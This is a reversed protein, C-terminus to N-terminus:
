KKIFRLVERQHDTGIELIYLGSNLQRVQLTTSNFFEGKQVAQGHISWITYTCHDQDTVINLTTCTPNPFLSIQIAESQRIGVPWRVHMDYTGVVGSGDKATAHITFSGKALGRVYGHSDIHAFTSDETSSLTWAVGIDTASDPVVTASLQILEGIDITDSVAAITISEVLTIEQTWLQVHDLYVVGPSFDNGDKWRFALWGKATGAPPVFDFTFETYETSLDYSQGGESIVTRGDDFFGYTVNLKGAAPSDTKAWFKGEYEGGPTLPMNSDWTDLSRDSLGAEPEVYTIMAAKAGHVVDGQIIENTSGLPDPVEYFRWFTFDNEFSGNFGAMVDVYKVISERNWVPDLLSAEPTGGLVGENGNSSLDAISQGQGEDIPWYGALGTEGGTIRQTAFEKIEQDSRAVNWIRVETLGAEIVRGSFAPSSGLFLHETTTPEVTATFTESTSVLNGNLYIKQLSGDYVGAVHNWTNLEFLQVGDESKLQHWSGDGFGWQIQGDGNARLFYGVDNGSEGHDMALITSQYIAGKTENIKFWAELTIESGSIQLSEDRGCDVYDDVGDFSLHHLVEIESPTSPSFFIGSVVADPGELLDMTFRVKGRITWTYWIGGDFDRITQIDYKDGTAHDSVNLIFSRDQMDGDLFYLSVDVEKEGVDVSFWWPHDITDATRAALITSDPKYELGRPDTSADEWIVTLKDPDWSLTAYEPLLTDKGVIYYGDAGYRDMWAGQTIGDSEVFQAFGSKEESHLVRIDDFAIGAVSIAQDDRHQFRIVFQDSFVLGASQALKSVNITTDTYSGVTGLPVSVRTFDLGGNNSFFIGDEPNTDSGFPKFSFEMVVDTLIGELKLHLDASNTSSTGAEESDLTLHYKGTRPEYLDSVEVRGASNETEVTWYKFDITGEEFSSVYPLEAYGHTAVVAMYAIITDEIADVEVFRIYLGRQAETLTVTAATLESSFLQPDRLTGVTPAGDPVKYPDTYYVKRDAAPASMNMEYDAGLDNFSIQSQFDSDDARTRYTAGMTFEGRLARTAEGALWLYHDEPDNGYTAFSLDSRYPPPNNDIKHYQTGEDVEDYMGLYLLQSGAEIAAKAMDWFYYGGERYKEYGNEHLIKERIGPSVTPTYDVGNATCWAIDSTVINKFEVQMQDRSYRSTHWPQVIDISRILNLMKTHESGSVCDGGGLRWNTPVGLMIACAGYDPSNQLSDVLEVWYQMDLGTSTHRHNFGVGWLVILPKGNHYLYPQDDGGTTLGLNDILYKWDDFIENVEQTRLADNPVGDVHINAGIDYMLGIARDHEWAAALGNALIKNMTSKVGWDSRFRQMLAGDIGYEKMWQFHRSVTKPHVSSFVYCPTGDEKVYSTPYKEDEDAERMDPWYEISASGPQFGNSGNYHRFSNTGGDGPTGFWGQYGTMSHGTYTTHASTASHVQAIALKGNWILLAVILMLLRLGSIKM